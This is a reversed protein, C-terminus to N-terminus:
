SALHKNKFQSPTLGTYKKFAANFSAKNRFGADYAISLITYHTLDPRLLLDQAEKVRYENIFEFFSKQLQENLIQSLHHTSINLKAALSKLDLNSNLYYRENAMKELLEQLYVRAKEDTLSSKQYQSASTAAPLDGAIIEPQRLTSYGIYYVLLAGSLLMGRAILLLYDYQFFYIGLLHILDFIAFLVFGALLNRLWTQRLRILPKKQDAGSRWHQYLRGAVILYAALHLFRVLELVFFVASFEPPNEIDRLASLARIKYEAPQLYFPLRYLVEAIFPLAHIWLRGGAVKKGNQVTIAYYILLPGFLLPLSLTTFLLHPFRLLGTTFYAAFEAIWLSFIFILGALLMNAQRDGRKLFVLALALFIGQAASFFAINTFFEM